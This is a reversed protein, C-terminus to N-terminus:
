VKSKLRFGGLHKKFIGKESKPSIGMHQTLLFVMDKIKSKLHDVAECCKLAISINKYINEPMTSKNELLWQNTCLVADKSLPSEIKKTM